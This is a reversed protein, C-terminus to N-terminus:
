FPGETEIASRWTLGMRERVERMTERAIARAREAGDDLIERIRQPHSRLAEARERMPAFAASISDSLIRKCDVCGRQATRCQNDIDPILATQAAEQNVIDHQGWGHWLTAQRM